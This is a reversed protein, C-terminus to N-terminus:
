PGEQAGPHPLGELPAVGRPQRDLRVGREVLGLSDVPQQVRSLGRAVHAHPIAPGALLLVVAMARLRLPRGTFPQSTTSLGAPGVEVWTTERARRSSFAALAPCPPVRSGIAVPTSGM